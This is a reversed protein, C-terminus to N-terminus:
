ESAPQTIEVASDESSKATNKLNDLIRTLEEDPIETKVGASIDTLIWIQERIEGAKAHDKISKAEELKARLETIMKQPSMPLDVSDKRASTTRRM